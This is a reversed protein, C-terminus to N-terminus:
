LICKGHILLLREVGSAGAAGAAGDDRGGVHGAEGEGGEFGEGFAVLDDGRGVEVAERGEEEEGEEPASGLERQVLPSVVVFYHVGDVELRLVRGCGGVVGRVGVVVMGLPPDRAVRMTLM